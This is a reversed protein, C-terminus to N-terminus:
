DPLLECVPVRLADALAYVNAISLNREGREISGIYTRHLGAVDALAEQSLGMAERAARVRRGFERLRKSPPNSRAPVGEPEPSTTDSDVSDSYCKSNPPSPSRPRPHVLWRSVRHYSWGAGRRSAPDDDQGHSQAENDAADRARRNCERVPVATVCTRVARGEIRRLLLETVPYALGRYGTGGAGM